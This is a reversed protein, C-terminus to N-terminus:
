DSAASTRSRELVARWSMSKPNWTFNYERKGVLPSINVSQWTVPDIFRELDIWVLYEKGGGWYSIRLHWASAKRRGGGRNAPGEPLWGPQRALGPM